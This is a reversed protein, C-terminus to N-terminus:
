EKYNQTLHPPPPPQYLHCACPEAAELARKDQTVPRLEVNPNRPLVRPRLETTALGSDLPPVPLFLTFYFDLMM